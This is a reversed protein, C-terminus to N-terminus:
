AADPSPPAPANPTSPTIAAAASGRHTFETGLELIMPTTKPGGSIAVIRDAAARGMQHLPQTVTTLAPSLQRAPETDDFSVLSIDRPVALHAHDFASLAGAALVDSLAIVATPRFPLALLAEAGTYGHDYDFSGNLVYSDPLEVGREELAIRCGQIRELNATSRASGGLIGLREHGLDLLQEAAQRGATLNASTITSTCPAIADVPDILVLPLSKERAHEVMGPDATVTVAIIGGYDHSSIDEIWESGPIDGVSKVAVQLDHATAGEIAGALIATSYPTWTSVVFLISMGPKLTHFPKQYGLDDAIKLISRRTEPAVNKRFNVVKSVTALSVGATEAIHTLTIHSM